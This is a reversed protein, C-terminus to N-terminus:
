FLSLVSLFAFHCWDAADSLDDVEFRGGDVRVLLAVCVDPWFDELLYFVAIDPVTREYGWM